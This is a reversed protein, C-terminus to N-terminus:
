RYEVRPKWSAAFRSSPSRHGTDYASWFHLGTTSFFITLSTFAAVEQGHRSAGDSTSDSTVTLQSSDAGRRIARALVQLRGYAGALGPEGHETASSLEVLRALEVLSVGNVVPTVTIVEGIGLEVPRVQFEVVDVAIM